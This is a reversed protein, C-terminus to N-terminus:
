KQRHLFDRSSSAVHQSFDKSNHKFAGAEDEEEM